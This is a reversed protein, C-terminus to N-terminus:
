QWAYFLKLYKILTWSNNEGKRPEVKLRKDLDDKLEDRM